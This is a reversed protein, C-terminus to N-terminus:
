NEKKKSHVPTLQFIQFNMQIVADIKKSKSGYTQTLYDRFRNIEELIDQFNKESCSLTVSSAHRTEYPDEHLAERAREMMQEHFHEVLENFSGGKFKVLPTSQIWGRKEHKKILQLRELHILAEEAQIKTIKNRLQASIWKPDSQFEELDVLERIAVFYWQSYYLYQSEMLELQPTQYGKATLTLRKFYYQQDRHSKSQNFFVLNEFYIAEQPSLNLAESFRRVTHPTLNRKGGVVLKFYGRSNEGLGARRVFRSMSYHPDKEKRIEYYKKLFLRYDVFAFVRPVKDKDEVEDELLSSLRADSIADSPLVM